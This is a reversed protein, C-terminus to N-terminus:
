NAEKKIGVRHKADGDTDDSRKRKNGVSGSPVKSQEEDVLASVSARLCFPFMKTGPFLAGYYNMISMYSSCDVCAELPTECSNNSLKLLSKPPLSEAICGAIGLQAMCGCNQDPSLNGACPSVPEMTWASHRGHWGTNTGQLHLPEEDAEPDMTTKLLGKVNKAFLVDATGDQQLCTSTVLDGNNCAHSLFGKGHQFVSQGAVSKSTKEGDAIKALVDEQCVDLATTETHHSHVVFGTTLSVKSFEFRQFHSYEHLVIIQGVKFPENLGRQDIAALPVDATFWGTEGGVTKDKLVLSVPQGNWSSVMVHAIVCTLKAHGDKSALSESMTLRGEGNDRPVICSLKGEIEENVWLTSITGSPIDDSRLHPEMEFEGFAGKKQEQTAKVKRELWFNGHEAVSSFKINDVLKGVSTGHLKRTMNVAASLM